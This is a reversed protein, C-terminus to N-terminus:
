SFNVIKDTWTHNAVFIVKMGQPIPEAEFVISAAGLPKFATSLKAM